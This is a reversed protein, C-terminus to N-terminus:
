FISQEIIKYKSSIKTPISVEENIKIRSYKLGLKFPTLAKMEIEIKANEGYSFSFDAEKHKINVKKIRLSIDSTMNLCLKNISDCASLVFNSDNIALDKTWNKFYSSKLDGLLVLQVLEVASIGIEDIFPLNLIACTKEINNLLYATDAKVIIRSMEIGLFGVSVFAVSDKLIKVQGDLNMKNNNMQVSVDFNASFTRIDENQAQMVDLLEDGNSIIIEMKSSKDGKKKSTCAFAFFLIVILLVLRRDM